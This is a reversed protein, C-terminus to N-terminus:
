RNVEAVVNTKWQWVGNTNNYEAFGLSIAERRLNRSYDKELEFRFATIILLLITFILAVIAVTAPKDNM